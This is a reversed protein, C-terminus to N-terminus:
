DDVVKEAVKLARSKARNQPRVNVGIEKEICYCIFDNLSQGNAKATNTLIEKASKDVVVSIRAYNIDTFLNKSESTTLDEKKKTKYKAVKEIKEAM